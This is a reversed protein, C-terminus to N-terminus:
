CKIPGVLREGCRGLHKVVALRMLFLLMGRDDLCGVMDGMSSATAM